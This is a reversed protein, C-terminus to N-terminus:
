FLVEDHRAVLVSGSFVEEMSLKGIFDEIKLVIDKM